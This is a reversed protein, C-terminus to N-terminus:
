AFVLPTTSRSQLACGSLSRHHCATTERRTIVFGSLSKSSSKFPHPSTASLQNWIIEHYYVHYDWSLSWVHPYVCSLIVIGHSHQSAIITSICHSYCSWQDHLIWSSVMITSISHHWPLVMIISHNMHSRYITQMHKCWPTELPHM